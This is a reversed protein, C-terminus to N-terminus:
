PGAVLPPALVVYCKRCLYGDPNLELRGNCGDHLMQLREEHTARLVKPKTSKKPTTSKKATM